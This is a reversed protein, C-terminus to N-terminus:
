SKGNSDRNKECRYCFKKEDNLVPISCSCNTNQDVTTVEKFYPCEFCGKHKECETPQLTEDGCQHQIVTFLSSPKLTHQLVGGLLFNTISKNKMLKKVPDDDPMKDTIKDIIKGTIDQVFPLKIIKNINTPDSQILLDKYLQSSVFLKKRKKNKM